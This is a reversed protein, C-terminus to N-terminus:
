PAKGEALAKELDGTQKDGFGRFLVRKTSDDWVLMWKSRIMAGFGNQSDVYGWAQWISKGAHFYGSEPDAFASFKATAPAKLGEKITAVATYFHDRGKDAPTPNTTRSCESMGAGFIVFMAFIFIGWKLIAGASMGPRRAKEVAAIMAHVHHWAEAGPEQALADATIAGSAWM